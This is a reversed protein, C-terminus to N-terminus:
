STVGRKARSLRAMLKGFSFIVGYFLRVSFWKTGSKAIRLLKAKNALGITYNAHYAIFTRSSFGRVGLLLFPLRHGIVFLREDLIWYRNANEKASAWINIAKDDPMTPNLELFSRHSSRIDELTHRSTANNKWIM